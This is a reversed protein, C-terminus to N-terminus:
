ERDFVKGEGTSSESMRRKSLYKADELEEEEQDENDPEVKKAEFQIPEEYQEHVDKFTEGGLTKCAILNKLQNYFLKIQM